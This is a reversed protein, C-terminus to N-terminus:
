RGIFELEFLKLSLQRSLRVDPTGLCFALGYFFWGSIWKGLDVSPIKKTRGVLNSSTRDGVRGEFTRTHWNRWPRMDRTKQGAVSNHCLCSIKDVLSAHGDSARM